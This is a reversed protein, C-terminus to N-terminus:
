KYIKFKRLLQVFENYFNDINIIPKDSSARIILYIGIPFMMINSVLKLLPNISGDRCCKQLHVLLIINFVIDICNYLTDLVVKEIIAGLPAGVFYYLQRLLFRMSTM